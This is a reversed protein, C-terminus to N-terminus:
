TPCTLGPSPIVVGRTPGGMAVGADNACAGAALALTAVGLFKWLTHVAIAEYGRLPRGEPLSFGDSDAGQGPPVELFHEPLARVLGHLCPPHRKASSPIPAVTEGARFSRTAPIIRRNMAVCASPAPGPGARANM